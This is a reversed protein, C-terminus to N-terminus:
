NTENSKNKNSLKIKKKKASFFYLLAVVLSFCAFGIIVWTNYGNGWLCFAMIFYLLSLASYAIFQIFHYWMFRKVVKPTENLVFVSNGDSVHSVTYTDGCFGDGVGKNIFGGGLIFTVSFFLLCYIEQVFIFLILPAIVVGVGIFVFVLGLIIAGLSKENPDNNM